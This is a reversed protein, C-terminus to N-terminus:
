PTGLLVSLNDPPWYRLVVVGLLNARPVPGFSRSDGSEPRNDGMVFIGDPPVHIQPVSIADHNVVYPEDLIRGNVYVVGRKISVIEGPLGVVRKVLMMEPDTPHVFTVISGRPPIWGESDLPEDSHTSAYAQRTLGSIGLRSILLMQGEHLTPEMSPGEVHSRATISDICAFLLLAMVLSAAIERIFRGL